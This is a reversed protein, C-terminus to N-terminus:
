SAIGGITPNKRLWPLTLLIFLIWAIVEFWILYIPWPGLHDILSPNEPPHAVFGFNTGLMMNLLGAFLLYLNVCFFARRPSRWWPLSPKWGDCLPIFLSSGVIAFHHLFFTFFTFHPFDYLLAPTILAQLTAALGWYYTLEQAWSKRSLLAYGALFATIDCLHFPLSNDLDVPHPCTSWAFQSYGYATLCFFALVARAIPKAVEPSRRASVILVSMVFFGVAVATLHSPSFVAFQRTVCHPHCPYLNKELFNSSPRSTLESQIFTQSGILM